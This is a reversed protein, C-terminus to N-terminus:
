SPHFRLTEVVTEGVSIVTDLRAGEVVSGASVLLVHGDREMLWMRGEVPPVWTLDGVSDRLVGQSTSTPGDAFDVITFDGLDTAMLGADSVSLDAAELALVAAAVTTMTDGAPTQDFRWVGVLDAAGLRIEFYTEAQALQGALVLDFSVGGQAPLSIPGTPVEGDLGAEWPRGAPIPHPGAQGLGLSEGVVAAATLTSADGTAVVVLPEFTGMEFWWVRTPSTAAVDVDHIGRNTLLRVCREVDACSSPDITLDFTRVGEGRPSVAAPEDVEVVGSLQDLWGDLDNVPWSRDAAGATPASPDVLGTPRVMWMQGGSRHTFAVFGAVHQQLTWVNSVDFSAPTGLRETRVVGTILSATSPLEPATPDYERAAGIVTLGTDSDGDFVLTGLAGIALVVVAAVLLRQQWGRAPRPEELGEVFADATPRVVPEVPQPNSRRLREFNLDHQDSM